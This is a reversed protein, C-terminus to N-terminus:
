GVVHHRVRKLDGDVDCRQRRVGLDRHKGPLFRRIQLSAGDVAGARKQLPMLRRLSASIVPITRRGNSTPPSGILPGKAFRRMRGAIPGANGHKTRTPSRVRQSATLKEAQPLCRWDGRLWRGLGSSSASRSGDALALRPSPEDARSRLQGRTLRVNAFM